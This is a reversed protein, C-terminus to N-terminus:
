LLQPKLCITHVHILFLPRKKKPHVFLVRCTFWCVQRLRGKQPEARDLLRTNVHWVVCERRHLTMEVECLEEDGRMWRM